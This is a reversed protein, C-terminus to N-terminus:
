ATHNILRAHRRTDNTGTHSAFTEGTLIDRHIKQPGVKTVFTLIDIPTCTQTTRGTHVHAKDMFAEFEDVTKDKRANSSISASQRQIGEIEAEPAKYLDAMLQEDLEQDTPAM